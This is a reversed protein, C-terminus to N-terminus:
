CDARYCYKEDTTRLHVRDPLLGLCCALHFELIGIENSFMAPGKCTLFSGWTLFFSGCVRCVLLSFNDNTSITYVWNWSYINARQKTRDSNWISSKLTECFRNTRPFTQETTKTKTKCSLVWGLLPFLIKYTWHNSGVFQPTLNIRRKTVGTAKCGTNWKLERKRM